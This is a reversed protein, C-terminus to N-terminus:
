REKKYEEDVSEVLSETHVTYQGFFYYPETSLESQEPRTHFSSCAKFKLLSGFTIIDVPLLIKIIPGCPLSVM